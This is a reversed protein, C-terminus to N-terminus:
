RRVLFPTQEEEVLRGLATRTYELPQDTICIRQPLYGSFCQPEAVKVRVRALVEPTRWACLLITFRGAVIAHQSVVVLMVMTQKITLSNAVYQPSKCLCLNLCTRRLLRTGVM